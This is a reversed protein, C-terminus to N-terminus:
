PDRGMGVQHEISDFSARNKDNRNAMGRLPRPTILQSLNQIAVRRAAARYGLGHADTFRAGRQGQHRRKFNQLIDGTNSAIRV